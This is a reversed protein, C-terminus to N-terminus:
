LESTAKVQSSITPQAKAELLRDFHADLNTM